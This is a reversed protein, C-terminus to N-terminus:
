VSEAVRGYKQAFAEYLGVINLLLSVDFYKITCTGFYRRRKMKDSPRTTTPKYFQGPPIKLLRSWFTLVQEFDHTEHVQLHARLRTEDIQFGRRLLELFTSVLTWDSNSFQLYNTAPPKGGECWYLLSVFLRARNRSMPLAKVLHRLQDKRRENRARARNFAAAQSPLDHVWRAVTAYPLGFDEALGKISRGQERARRVQNVLREPHFRVISDDRLRDQFDVTYM